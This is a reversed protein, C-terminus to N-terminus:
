SLIFFLLCALGDKIRVSGTKVSSLPTKLANMRRLLLGQLM